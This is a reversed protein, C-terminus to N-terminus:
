KNFTWIVSVLYYNKKGRQVLIYKKHLLLSHDVMMKVNEVKKRNISIGGGEVLKRAEGKSNFIGTEVLFSVVDPSENLRAASFNFRAIGEISKLDEESLSDASASQNAFMKETDALAKQYGEEGHVFTTIERALMKQLMRAGPDQQQQILLTEIEPRDLFTFIRIWKETDTDSANVWFQYFEYPSTKAPDLWINGKETKGFKGGDAKTLLPCTFAFAEGGSKRRILETGTTINGWQDSGGM